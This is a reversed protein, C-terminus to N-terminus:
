GGRSARELEKFAQTFCRGLLEPEAVAATDVHLGMDLSGLYSMLTLNFAVGLLPGLPYVAEIQAGSLFMPLPSGRLNSTAFDVTEAQQRAIRTLLSTPLGATLAALADLGAGGSAERGASIAQEVLHFREVIPMEATPVTMRALSFANGGSSETRTSVAMSARLAEVPQGLEAHYAGAAHAAATLFATNLTGGLSRAAAKTAQFPAQLPVLRRRVSRETWLPSRAGATDSLQTVIGRLTRAAATTADPISAPDTLLDRVQRAVGIPLRLGGAVFERVTDATSAAGAASDSRDPEADDAGAAAPSRDLADAVGPPEPADREFDMYQLSLEVGREGDTLTHHMKQLVVAKGGRLGEIVVYQWLPRTRDLPDAMLVAVVDLAERLTAPRGGLGRPCAIRRVHYDLDFAPDDVWVPPLGGGAPQVRQRLRGIAHATYDLRRRLMQHDPARDLVMVAGFTSTLHPDKELRWMLAEADSFARDFRVPAAYVPRQGRPVM